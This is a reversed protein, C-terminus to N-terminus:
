AQFVIENCGWNVTTICVTALACRATDNFGSNMVAKGKFECMGPFQFHKLAAAMAVPIRDRESKCM